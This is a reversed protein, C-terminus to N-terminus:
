LLGQDQGWKLWSKVLKDTKGADNPNTPNAQTLYSLALLWDGHGAKLERLLLSIVERRHDLAMGLIAQYSPHMMRQLPSSLHATESRWRNAQEAFCEELASQSTAGFAKAVAEEILLLRTREPSEMTSLPWELTQEPESWDAPRIQPCYSSTM